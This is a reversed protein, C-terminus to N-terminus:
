TEPNDSRLTRRRRDAAWSRVALVVFLLALAAVGAAAPIMPGTNTLYYQVM